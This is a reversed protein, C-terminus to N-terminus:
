AIYGSEVSKGLGGGGGESRRMKRWISWLRM